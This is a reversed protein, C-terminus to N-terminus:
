IQRREDQHTMCVNVSRGDLGGCTIHWYDLIEEFYDLHLLELSAIETRESRESNKEWCEVSVPYTLAWVVRTYM